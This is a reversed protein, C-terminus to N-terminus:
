CLVVQFMAFESVSNWGRSAVPPSYPGTVSQSPSGLWICIFSCKPFRNTSKNQALIEHGYVSGAYVNCTHSLLSLKFHFYPFPLLRKFLKKDQEHRGMHLFMERETTKLFSKLIQKVGQHWGIEHLTVRPYHLPLMLQLLLQYLTCFLKVFLAFGTTLSSM